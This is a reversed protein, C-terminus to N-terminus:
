RKIGLDGIHYRDSFCDLVLKLDPSMCLQLMEGTIRHVREEERVREEETGDFDAEGTDFRIVHVLEHAAIYTLLPELKIFSHAREVADLIRHDQLCVRYFHGNIYEYKCLHAFAGERVENENLFALTRVDYRFAAMGAPPIRFHRGAVAEARRFARTALETERANFFRGM